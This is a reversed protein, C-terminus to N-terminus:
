HKIFTKRLNQDSLVLCYQGLALDSIDISNIGFQLNGTAVAQGLTNIVQYGVQKNIAWSVELYNSVPNPYLKLLEQTELSKISSTNSCCNFDLCNPTNQFLVGNASTM